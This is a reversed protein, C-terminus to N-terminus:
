PGYTPAALVEVVPHLVAKAIEYRDLLQERMLDIDSGPTGQEPESDRRFIDRQPRAGLTLAGQGGGIHSGHDFEVHWRAPLYGRLEARSRTANHVDCDIIGNRPSRGGAEVATGVATMDRERRFLGFPQNISTLEAGTPTAVTRTKGASWVDPLSLLMLSVFRIPM